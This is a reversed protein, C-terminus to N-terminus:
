ALLSVTNDAFVDSIEEADVLFRRKGPIDISEARVIERGLKQLLNHMEVTEDPTIRILSKDTLMTLGINVSDGLLDKIYSVQEGNFLFAFAIYLFLERDERQLRNYSVKLTDEIKGYLDNRLRPLM